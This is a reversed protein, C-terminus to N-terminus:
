RDRGSNVCVAKRTEGCGVTLRSVGEGYHVRWLGESLPPTECSAIIDPETDHDQDEKWKFSASVTLEHDGTIRTECEIDWSDGYGHGLFIQVEHALGDVFKGSCEAYLPPRCGIDVDEECVCDPEQPVVCATGTDEVLEGCSLLLLAAIPLILYNHRM